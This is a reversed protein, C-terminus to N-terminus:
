RQRTDDNKARQKKLNRRHATLRKEKKAQRWECWQKDKAKDCDKEVSM